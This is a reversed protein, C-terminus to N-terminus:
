IKVVNKRAAVLSRESEPYRGDEGQSVLVIYSQDELLCEQPELLRFIKPVFEELSPISYVLRSFCGELRDWGRVGSICLLM